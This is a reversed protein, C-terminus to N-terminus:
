DFCFCKNQAHNRMWQDILVLASMAEVIPVARPLVCADHRGKGMVETEAGTTTVTKQKQLITATPKFAIRFFIEEGNSIGGQVGGSRNSATRIRGEHNEFIDNHAAGTMTAGAFGSGIEFGKTAPISLMAKALDAELRDFVPAGMGIPANYIHCNIIGGISNGQSRIEKIRDIMRQATAPDPCRAPNAEVLERTPPNDQLADPPMAIDHIASVYATIEVGLGLNLIKRAIAGAAVRGITERASSRGGGEVARIGYKNHYTYDAHSPRFKDRMEDYAQPRADKNRVNMAIPTGLTRGHYIGSLFEVTDTEKRPTTIDSQGPRRRDLERQIDEETLPLRPPCGDVVVGVSGGHSEGWTSITFLNGFTNGMMARTIEAMKPSNAVHKKADNGTQRPKLLTSYRKRNTALDLVRSSGRLCLITM